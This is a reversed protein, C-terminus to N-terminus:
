IPTQMLAQKTLIAPSNDKYPFSKCQITRNYM